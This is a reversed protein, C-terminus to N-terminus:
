LEFLLLHRHRHAFGALLMHKGAHPNRETRDEAKEAAALAADLPCGLLDLVRLQDGGSRRVLPGM